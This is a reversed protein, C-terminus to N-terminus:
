TKVPTSTHPQPILRYRPATVFLCAGSDMLATVTQKEVVIPIYLLSQPPPPNEESFMLHSRRPGMVHTSRGNPLIPVAEKALYCTDQPPVQRSVVEAYTAVRHLSHEGNFTLSNCVNARSDHLLEESLPLNVNRPSHECFEASNKQNFPQVKCTSESQRPVGCQAAVSFHTCLTGHSLSVPLHPKSHFM